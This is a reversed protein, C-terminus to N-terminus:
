EIENNDELNEKDENNEDVGEDELDKQIKLIEEETFNLINQEIWKKSIYGLNRLEDANRVAEFKRNFSLIRKINEYDNNNLFIFNIKDELFNWEEISFINKSILDRKLAEKFLLLFKRRLKLIFKYFKIEEKEYEDSGGIQIRADESFRRTIPIKMARYLKRLFYEADVIEAGLQTAPLNEVKTGRGSSTVPFWFDELLSISRPRNEITGEDLNYIKKQRYKTILGRVYEEAKSKPLNGVDVYFVRKETSKTLRFIVISNEILNLQNLIRYIRSLYSLPFTKKANWLGSPVYILQEESLRIAKSKNSSFNKLFYNEDIVYYKVGDEIINYIGFPELIKLDVIGNSIKNNDYVCEVNLVGDIFWQRFIEEGKNKFDLLNLIKYFSEIIKDKIKKSLEINALDIKLTEEFNEYVIAENIIEEIALEVEPDEAIERWKLILNDRNKLEFMANRNYGGFFMDNLFSANVFFGDEYKVIDSSSDFNKQKKNNSFFKNKLEEFFNM